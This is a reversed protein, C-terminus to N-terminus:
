RLRSYNYGGQKLYQNVAAGLSPNKMPWWQGYRNKGKTQAFANGHEILKFINQPVQDYQYVSGGHFKMLLKQTRPNYKMGEVNSSQLQTNPIGDSGVSPQGQPIQRQLQSITQDLLTPNNLISAFDEGPFTRLYNVFANQDGGSLVWLLRAGNSVPPEIITGGGTPPQEQAYAEDIQRTLEGIEEALMGQFEDSLVEGSQLVDQIGRLLEDLLRELAQVNV